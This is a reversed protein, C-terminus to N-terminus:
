ILKMNQETIKTWIAWTPENPINEKDQHLKLQSSIVHKNVYM